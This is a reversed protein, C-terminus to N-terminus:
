VDMQLYQQREEHPVLSGGTSWVLHIAQELKDQLGYKQVFEAGECVLQIPGFVGAHASPAMFINEQEFMAKLSRFLFSDDVTYCGNLIPEMLKGVFKSARGVALGDAETVNTLGINSVAIEDHKGSILGLTMCPSEIPEGFFIYVHEGFAAKLGYAVGGPAGGVGCPIYVFLPNDANVKLKLQQLQKKLRLGAVAYGEFLDKSNEDDIFHSKEDADSEARGAAVAATYDEEYEVVEVGQSRLLDKKWLKADSSMHVTVQFGLKAGITGISLGLNGTSGVAIKYQSFLAKAEESALSEYSQEINQLIGHELALKEALKMVEYVGGRAKISGSIPLAHDCKLFLRGPIEIARRGEILRRMADIEVVESEIMGDTLKTVPFAVKFYDAFRAWRKEAEYLDDLPVEKAEEFHAQAHENTWFVYERNALKKIYQKPAVHVNNGMIWGEM